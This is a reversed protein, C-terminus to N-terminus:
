LKGGVNWFLRSATDKAAFAKVKAASGVVPKNTDESIRSAVPKRLITSSTCHL